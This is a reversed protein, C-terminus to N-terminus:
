PTGVSPICLESQTISDLREPGFQNDVYMGIRKAHKPQKALFTGKDGLRVPGCGNQTISTKALKATYCVLLNTPHQIIAPTIPKPEGEDPGALLAPLGSTAVPACLKTIKKLDYRRSQFQDTVEVQIGDPLKTLSAVGYCLFHDVNTETPASVAAALDKHTPVLLTTPKKVHVTLDTCQNVIHVDLPGFKESLRKLKYAELHTVPDHIGESNKDAPLGLQAPKLVIYDALGFQDQLSVPGFKLFKPTNRTTKVKYFIFHDNCDPQPGPLCTGARCTDGVTCANGDDCVNGDAKVPNSCQGTAPDCTGADHCQDQAACVVLTAELGADAAAEATGLSAAPPCLPNDDQVRVRAHLVFSGSGGPTVDIPIRATKFPPVLFQTTQPTLAVGPPDSSLELTYREDCANGSNTILLAQEGTGPCRLTDMIPDWTIAVDRFAGIDIVTFDAARVLPDTASSALVALITRQQLFASPESLIVDVAESAGAALTVESTSLTVFPALPGAAALAFTEAQMGSNTVTAQFVATETPSLSAAPPTLDVNVGLPTVELIGSASGMVNADGTSEATVVLPLSAPMTGPDVTLRLVTERGASLGPPVTLAADQFSGSVGNPLSASLDFTQTDNTTNTVVVTFSAVTGQGGTGAAPSVDVHVGGPLLSPAPAEGSVSLRAGADDTTGLDGVAAVTFDIDSEPTTPLTQLHLPLEVEEGPAVTVQSTLSVLAPDVGLVDLSFTEPVQRVNRLRVTLDATGSPVVAQEAPEIGLIHPAHVATPDLPVSISVATGDALTLTADVRTTESVTRTEGPYLAPVDVPVTFSKGLILPFTESWEVLQGSVSAPAPTVDGVQFMVDGALRHAVDVTASAADSLAATQFLYTNHFGWSAAQPDPISLDDNVNTIRYDIHSWVSRGRGWGADNGFVYLGNISGTVVEVAGDADVDAAVPYDRGTASHARPDRYLAHGTRGDLISFGSCPGNWLVEAAGDSDLDAASVGGPAGGPDPAESRWLENGGADLAVVFDRFDGELNRLFLAIEPRGDGNLDAVAPRTVSLDPYSNCSEGSPCDEASACSRTKTVSCVKPVTPLDRRWLAGGGNRVAVVARTRDLENLGVVVFDPVGDNDLDGVAPRSLQKSSVGPVLSASQWVLTGSTRYAGLMVSQGFDSRGVLEPVGDGDVDVAIPQVGVLNLLNLGATGDNQLFGGPWLIEPLADGDLNELVPSVMLGGGPPDIRFVETGDAKFGILSGQFEQHVIVEAEPDADINGLATATGNGCFAGTLNGGLPLMKRLQVAKTVGNLIFTECQGVATQSTFVIDPIGDGTLDGVMPANAVGTALHLSADCNSCPIPQFHEMSVRGARHTNAALVADISVAAALPSIRVYRASTLGASVLDFEDGTGRTGSASGLMAFPGAPDNAVEVTYAATHSANCKFPDLNNATDREFVVLDSGPGDAIRDFDAGMDVVLSGGSGIEATMDDAVGLSGEPTVTALSEIVAKAYQDPFSTNQDISTRRASVQVSSIVREARGPPVVLPEATVTADLPIGVLFSARGVRGSVPRGTETQVSVIATFAGTAFGTTDVSGLDATVTDSGPTLSVSAPTGTFVTNGSGDEVRLTARVTRPVNAANALAATLALPQGANDVVRPAPTVAIVDVASERVALSGYATRTVAPRETVQAQVSFGLAPRQETTSTLELTVPSPSSEDLVEGPALTVSTRSLQASLGPPLGTVALDITSSRRGTSALLVTYVATENPTVVQGSPLLVMDFGHAAEDAIEAIEAPLGAFVTCVDARAAAIRAVEGSQIEVLVAHLSEGLAQRGVAILETILTNGTAIVRSQLVANDPDGALRSLAAGTNELAASLSPVDRRAAIASDLLCLAEPAGVLVKLIAIRGSPQPVSCSEPPTGNCLDALVGLSITTGVATTAPVSVSIPFSHTEGSALPVSSPVGDLALGGSDLVSLAAAEDVNAVSALVLDATSTTGPTTALEAPVMGSVLGVVQPYPFSVSESDTLGTTRGTVTATFSVATGPAPLGGEPHIAVGVIGTGARPVWVSPAALSFDGAALGSVSVEFDDATAGLNQIEIRYATPALITGQPVSYRTDPVVRVALQATEPYMVTVLVPSEARLEEVTRSRASFRVEYTGAALGAPPTLTTSGDAAIVVTWGRGADVELLYQDDANSLLQPTIVASSDARALVNAPTASLMLAREFQGEVAVSTDSGLNALSLQSTTLGTFGVNVPPEVSNGAIELRGATVDTNVAGDELHLDVGTAFNALPCPVAPEGGVSLGISNAPYTALGDGDGCGLQAQSGARFYLANFDGSLAGGGALMTATATVDRSDFNREVVDDAPLPDEHARGLPPDSLDSAINLAVVVIGLAALIMATPPFATAAAAVTLFKYLGYGAGITISVNAIYIGALKLQTARSVPAKLRITLMVTRLLNAWVLVGNVIVVAVDLSTVHRGDEGVGILEGTVDNIELWGIREAGEIAVTTRPTVVTLGRQLAAAIRAHAESSVSLRDLGAPNGASLVDIPVGEAQAAAIVTLANSPSPTDGFMIAELQTQALGHAARFAFPSASAGPKPLVRLDNKRLDLSLEVTANKGDQRLRSGAVFLLPAAAYAHTTTLRQIGADFLDAVTAFVGITARQHAAFAERAANDLPAETEALQKAVADLRGATLREAEAAGADQRSTIVGVTLLDIETLNLQEGDFELAPPGAEGRRTAFGLRDMVAREFGTEQGLADVVTLQLFVGTLASGGVPSFLEQYDSGRVLEDGIRFYPSFTNTIGLGGFGFHKRDVFHGMTVPVGVLDVTRFSRDLVTRQIVAVSGFRVVHSDEEESVPPEFSSDFALPLSFLGGFPYLEAVVKLRVTHRVADDVEVFTSEVPPVAQRSVGHELTPDTARWAAGDFYEVWHHAQTEDRLEPDNAPDSPEEAGPAYQSANLFFQNLDIDELAPLNAPQLGGVVRAVPPFMSVILEQADPVNLTGAAYRAPVGCARLMAVLLSAQDLANGAMSWLTGRAGRLSGRYAEFAIDDRVFAFLATPDCGLEGTKQLVYPDSTNADITSRLYDADAGLTPRLVTPAVSAEVARTRVNGFARAGDDIPSTSGPANVSLTATVQGFAPISPLVFALRGDPAAPQDPTPAAATIAVGPALTTVLLVEGVEQAGKNFITYTLTLAGGPGLTDLSFASQTRALVIPSRLPIVDSPTQAQVTRASLLPSTTGVREPVGAGRLLAPPPVVQLLMVLALFSALGKRRRWPFM